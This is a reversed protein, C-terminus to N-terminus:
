TVRQRIRVLCWLIKGWDWNGEGAFWPTQAQDPTQLIDRTDSENFFFEEDLKLHVIGTRIDLLEKWDYSVTTAVNHVFCTVFLTFFVFLIAPNTSLWYSRLGVRLCWWRYVYTSLVCTSLFHPEIWNNWLGAILAVISINEPHWQTSQYGM